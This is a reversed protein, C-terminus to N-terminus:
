AAIWGLSSMYRVVFILIGGTIAIWPGIAALVRGKNFLTMIAALMPIHLLGIPGFVHQGAFLPGDFWMALVYVTLAAAFTQRAFGFHQELNIPGSEPRSPALLSVAFGLSVPAILMYLFSAYSWEIERMDWLSWWHNIVIFTLAVSWLVHPTYWQVRDRSRVLFALGDLLHGLSLALIMSIMVSVFEFLTM